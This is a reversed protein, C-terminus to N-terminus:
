VMVTEDTQSTAGTHPLTNLVYPLFMILALWAWTVMTYIMENKWGLEFGMPWSEHYLVAKGVAAVMMSLASGIFLSWFQKWPADNRLYFWGGFVLMLMSLFFFPEENKYENYTIWLALPVAGYFLFSLLTWDNRVRHYFPRFGPMWAALLVLILVMLIMWSWLLGEQLFVSLFWPLSYWWVGQLKEMISNFLLLSFFPLPLGMYPLFWRPLGKSSGLLFGGAVLIGLMSSLFLIVLSIQIWFAFTTFNGLYAVGAMMMGFLFPALAAYVEKPSGPAISVHSTFNGNMKSLRRQRLHELLISMPLSGLERLILRGISLESISAAEKLSLDFVAQLESGYEARYNKPYFSLFLGYLRRLFQLNTKVDKM